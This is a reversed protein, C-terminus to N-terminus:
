SFRNKGDSYSIWLTGRQLTQRNKTINKKISKRYKFIEEIRFILFFLLLGIIIGFIKINMRGELLFASKISRKKHKNMISQYVFELYEM